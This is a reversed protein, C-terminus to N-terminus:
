NPFDSNEQNIDNIVSDLWDLEKEKELNEERIVAAEVREVPHTENLTSTQDNQIAEERPVNESPSEAATKTKSKKSKRTSPEKVTKEKGKKSSTASSKKRKNSEKNLVQSSNSSSNTHSIAFIQLISNRFLNWMKAKLVSTEERILTELLGLLVILARTPESIQNVKLLHNKHKAEICDLYRVIFKFLEAENKEKILSDLMENLSLIPQKRPLPTLMTPLSSQQQQYNSQPNTQSPSRISVVNGAAPLPSAISQPLRPLPAATRKMSNRVRINIFQERLKPEIQELTNLCTEDTIKHVDVFFKFLKTSEESLNNVEKVWVETNEINNFYAIDAKLLSIYKCLENYTKFNLLNAPHSHECIIQRPDAPDQYINVIAPFSPASQWKEPHQWYPDNQLQQIKISIVADIFSSLLALSSHEDSLIKTLDFYLTPKEKISNNKLLEELYEIEKKVKAHASVIKPLGQPSHDLNEHCHFFQPTEADNLVLEPMKEPEYHQIIPHYPPFNTSEM